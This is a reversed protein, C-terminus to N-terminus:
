VELIARAQELSERSPPEVDALEYPIGLAEWKFEGMKHFPLVEVKVVNVFPELFSAMRRIDTMNDTYGPVLVFRVWIPIELYEALRLVELTKDLEVGTLQKYTVPNFSKIDLLLLDTYQLAREAAHRDAYGSTDLATHLGAAKCAALLEILFEPQMFPEGGTVTVGGGSFKLYSQYKKIDRITDSVTVLQGSKVKWTDPNHCYKCRLGCGSLFVVYRIGPGDVMGGTEVSHVYGQQKSNYIIM